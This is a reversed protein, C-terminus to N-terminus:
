PAALADPLEFNPLQWLRAFGNWLHWIYGTVAWASREMFDTPDAADKTFRVTAEGGEVSVEVNRHVGM